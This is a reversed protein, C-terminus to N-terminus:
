DFNSCTPLWFPFFLYLILSFWPTKRWGFFWRLCSTFRCCTPVWFPQFFFDCHFKGWNLFGDWFQPKEWWFFRQPDGMLTDLFCMACAMHLVPAQSCVLQRPTKWTKRAWSPTKTHFLFPFHFSCRHFLQCVIKTYILNSQSFDGIYICTVDISRISHKRKTSDFDNLVGVRWWLTDLDKRKLGSKRCTVFFLLSNAIPVFLQTENMVMALFCM